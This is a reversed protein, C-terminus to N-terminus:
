ETFVPVNANLSLATISAKDLVFGWYTGSRGGWATGTSFAANGSPKSTCSTNDAVMHVDPEKTHFELCLLKPVDAAPILSVGMTEVPTGNRGHASSGTTSFKMGHGAPVSGPGAASLADLSGGNAVAFTIQYSLDDRSTSVASLTGTGQAFNLRCTIGSSPVFNQGGLSCQNGLLALVLAGQEQDDGKKAASEGIM